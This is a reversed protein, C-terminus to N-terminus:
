GDRAPPAESDPAPSSEASGLAEKKRRKLAPVSHDIGGQRPPKNFKGCHL